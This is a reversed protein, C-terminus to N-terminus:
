VIIKDAEAVRKEAKQRRKDALNTPKLLQLVPSEVEVVLEYNTFQGNQEVGEPILSRYLISPRRKNVTGDNERSNFDDLVRNKDQQSGSVELIAGLGGRGITRLSPDSQGSTAVPTNYVPDAAAKPPAGHCQKIAVFTALISVVKAIHFNYM